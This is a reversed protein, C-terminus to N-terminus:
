LRLTENDSNSHNSHKSIEFYCCDRFPQCVPLKFVLLIERLTQKGMITKGLQKRWKLRLAEKETSESIRAAM